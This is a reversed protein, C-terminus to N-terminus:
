VVCKNKNYLELWIYFQTRKYGLLPNNILHNNLSEIFPKGSLSIRYQINSSRKDKNIGIKHNAYFYVKIANLIYYDNNQSIYFSTPKNNRFRFCSEAEIFGSLWEKFYSPLIFTNYYKNIIDSQLNYKFDRTKLHYDWDKNKLCEKLHELQCIKRSTLLPYKSLINLCNNFNIKSSLYWKIKIIKNNKKEYYIKGGINKLILNLM